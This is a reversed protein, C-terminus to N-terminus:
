FNVDDDYDDPYRRGEKWFCYLGLVIIGSVVLGAGFFGTFITLIM